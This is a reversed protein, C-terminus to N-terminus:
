LASAPQMLVVVVDDGCAGASGPQTQIVGDAGTSVLRVTGNTATQIIIPNLWADLVTPDGNAGYATTFNANVAYTGTPALMYPGRWGRGTVPDFSPKAGQNFLDAMTAPFSGMDSLYGPRGPGSGVIADRVAQMTTKTAVYAPSDQSSASSNSLIGNFLPVLITALIAMIAVVVVIEILTFGRNRGSRATAGNEITRKNHM